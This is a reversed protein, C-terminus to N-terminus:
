VSPDSSCSPVMKTEDAAVASHIRLSVQLTQFSFVNLQCSCSFGFKARVKDQYTMYLSFGFTDKLNIKQAIASCLESSISSSDVPLTLVRGDMLTVEVKIPKKMEMAQIAGCCPQIVSKNRVIHQM